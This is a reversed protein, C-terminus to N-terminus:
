HNLQHVHLSALLVDTMLDDMRQRLESMGHVVFVPDRMVEFTNGRAGKLKVEISIM